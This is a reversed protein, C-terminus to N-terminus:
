YCYQLRVPSINLYFDYFSSVAVSSAAVSLLIAENVSFQVTSNALADLTM